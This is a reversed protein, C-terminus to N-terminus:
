VGDPVLLQGEAVVVAAGGVRVDSVSEKSGTISVSIQSPRAMEIGQEIRIHAVGSEDPAIVGHRLLYVGFPGAAAGTAPDEAIGMGPAFMRVHAGIGEAMGDRAFLYLGTNPPVDGMAAALDAGPRSRAVAGIGRAPVYIFPVGASGREIPLDDAIDEPKLGLTRALRAADSSWMVFSPVPQHMWVFSLRREDFLLDIPLTGAALQLYAPSGTQESIIGLRALAFTTGIVPHGALPLESAPTFIRVRRVARADTAPLVFTTESFNMERAITQMEADSLGEADPFVALQNGAFAEHTFVDLQLFQYQRM